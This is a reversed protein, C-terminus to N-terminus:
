SLTEGGIRLGAAIATLVLVPAVTGGLLVARLMRPTHSPADAPIGLRAGVRVLATRQWLLGSCAIFCITLAWRAASASARDAQFNGATLLPAVIALVVLMFLTEHQRRDWLAALLAVALTALLLWAGLGHAHGAAASWDPMDMIEGVPALEGIMGPMLGYVAMMLLGPVLCGMVARDVTPWPPELLPKLLYTATANWRLTLRAAIWLIGLVGLGIGYAQLSRPDTLDGPYAVVWPQRNLWATVGFLV